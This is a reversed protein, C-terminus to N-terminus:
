YIKITMLKEILTKRDIPKTLYDHFGLALSYDREERMAHATLAVVPSPYEATKLLRMAQNGDLVPMQIDMLVVDFKGLLAKEVGYQGNVAFDVIAGAKKLYSSLLDRNDPSDDVILVSLGTLEKAVLAKAVDNTERSTVKSFTDTSVVLGKDVYVLFTSGKNVSSWEITLDGGLSRALRQSLFLGLGTGGYNRTTSADAQAFPQFLREMETESMGRGSDRVRFVLQETDSMTEISCLMTVTGGSPTFKIANGLLNILIQRLRTPDSEITKPLRGTIVFKLEVGRDAAKSIFLQEIDNLFVNLDIELKEIDIRGAEAKEIDLLDNILVTLQDGNRKVKNYLELRDGAHIDLSTMLESFGLVAGLPTRIEHSINALFASKANNAADAMLKAAKMEEEAAREATIDEIVLSFGFLNGLPDQIESIKIKGWFSTQDARYLWAEEETRGTDLVNELAKNHNDKLVDEEAFFLQFSKHYVQSKSYGFLRKAGNTWSLILGTPGLMLIAYDTLSELLLANADVGTKSLDKLITLDGINRDSKTAATTALSNALSNRFVTAMSRSDQHSTNNVAMGTISSRLEDAADIEAQGWAKSKGISSDYWSQFSTRPHIKGDELFQKATDPNGAWKKDSKVEPRFWIISDQHSQSIEIALIGCALPNIATKTSVFDKSIENTCFIPANRTTLWNHITKVEEQSPTSGVLVCRGDFLLAAGQSDTLGLLSAANSSFSQPISSYGGGFQLLDDYLKKLQLKHDIEAVDERAIIQASVMQGIFESAVRVDYKLFHAKPHHCSILGWLKRGKLLSISMSAAQGMNKMYEIHVPSVSRLVSNSLDLAKDTIPNVAPIIKSPKYDVNPIIRLWNTTYLERAQKPIDSAPFHHHLLTEVDDDKSENIVEGNWNEDFKYVLVRSFETLKRIEQCSLELVEALNETVMMKSTVERIAEYFGGFGGYGKDNQIHPELELILVRGARHMIGDFRRVKGKVTVELPIPNLLRPLRDGLRKTAREVSEIPMLKSLPQHLLETPHMGFLESVSESIQLITYDSSRLTILVGHAQVSGPVQIPENECQKLAALYTSEDTNVYERKLLNIFRLKVLDNTNGLHYTLWWSSVCFEPTVRLLSGFIISM